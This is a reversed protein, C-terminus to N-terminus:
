MGSISGGGQVRRRALASDMDSLGLRDAMQRMLSDEHPDRVGDALIVTWLEELIAIRDEIPIAAKIARTFQFLDIAESEAAEGEERLGRAQAADLKFRKMLARDIMKQESDDYHDDARAAMVLVSAIALRADEPPLDDHGTSLLLRRLFGQVM